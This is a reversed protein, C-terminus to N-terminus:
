ALAGTRSGRPSSTALGRAQAQRARRERAQCRPLPRRLMLRSVVTKPADRALWVCSDEFARTFRSGARAFPLEEAVVGCRPCALRRLELRVLYSVRLLDLHRFTRLTRDYAARSSFGCRSCVLKRRQPLAVDVIVAEEGAEGVLEVTLVRLGDLRLLRKFLTAVRM